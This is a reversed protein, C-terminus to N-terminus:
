FLFLFYNNWFNIELCLSRWLSNMRHHLKLDRPRWRVVQFPVRTRRTRMRTLLFDPLHFHPWEIGSSIRLLRTSRSLTKRRWRRRPWKQLPRCVRQTAKKGQKPLSATLRNSPRTRPPSSTSRATSSPRRPGAWQWTRCSLSLPTKHNTAKSVAAIQSQNRSLCRCNTIPQKLALPLKHNTAKSVTATKPPNSQIPRVM